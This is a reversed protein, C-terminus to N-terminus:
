QPKVFNYVIFGTSKVARNSVLAPKFRTARAADEAAPRLLSNGNIAKASLVKGTEDLSLQVNVTGQVNLKQAIQPYVPMVLKLAFKNLQGLDVSEPLNVPETVKPTEVVPVPDPKKPEPQVPKVQEAELRKLNNKAVDNTADLEIVKRYDSIAREASGKKEFSDARNLYAVADKPNLEIAKDYDAIASDYNKKGSFARARNIYSLNDKPNLKLAENYDNVALDYDGKFNNEDARKRYFAFDPTPAPTPMPTPIPTPKPTAVPIPIPTPVPTPKPIVAVVKTSKQKIAEMLESDAGTNSLELEIEPTLAFTIGRVKVADSILKNREVLTVKKSRLAILVDALSLQAQQARGVQWTFTLSFMLVTMSFFRLLRRRTLEIRFLLLIKM